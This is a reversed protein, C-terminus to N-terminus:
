RHAEPSHALWRGTAEALSYLADAVASADCVVEGGLWATITGLQAEALATAILRSRPARAPSQPGTRASLRKQLMSTLVRAVPRRAAGGLIERAQSRNLWCHELVRRLPERNGGADVSKALARFPRQISEALVEDKSTYHDYFTSRGVNARTVIDAVTIRDYRRPEMLLDTFAGVLAKRTRAVRRNQTTVM